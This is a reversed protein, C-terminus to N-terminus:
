SRPRTCRGLSNDPSPSLGLSSSPLSTEGALSLWITNRIYDAMGRAPNFRRYIERFGDLAGVGVVHHTKLLWLLAVGPGRSNGRNCHVLVPGLQIKDSIFDCARDILEDSIFAASDADVLNLSLENGRLAFLYEPGAPARPGSYGVAQRHWPEKAAHVVFWDPGILALDSEGGVFLNPFVETM